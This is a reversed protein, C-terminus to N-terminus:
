MVFVTTVMPIEKISKNLIKNCKCTLIDLQQQVQVQDHKQESPINKVSHQRLLDTFLVKINIHPCIHRPQQPLHVEKAHSTFHKHFSM